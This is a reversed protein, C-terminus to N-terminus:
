AELVITIDSSPDESIYDRYESILEKDTYTNFGQFGNECISVAYSSSQEMADMMSGTLHEIM